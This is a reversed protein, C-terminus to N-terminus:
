NKESAVRSKNKKLGNENDIHEVLAVAIDSPLREKNQANCPAPNGKDDFINKWDVVAAEIKLRNGTGTLYGMSDDDGANSRSIVLKDEIRNVDEVALKRLTFVPFDAEQEGKLPLTFEYTSNKSILKVPM